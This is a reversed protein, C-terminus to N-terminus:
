TEVTTHSLNVLVLYFGMAAEGEPFGLAHTSSFSMNSFYRLAGVGSSSVAPSM